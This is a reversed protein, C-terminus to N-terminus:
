RDATLVGASLVPFHMGSLASRLLSATPPVAQLMQGNRPPARGRRARIDPLWGSRQGPLACHRAHRHGASAACLVDKCRYPVHGAVPRPVARFVCHHYARADASVGREAGTCAFLDYDVACGGAPWYAVRQGRCMRECVRERGFCVFPHQSCPARELTHAHIHPHTGMSALVFAPFRMALVVTVFSIIILYVMQGTLNDNEMFLRIWFFSARAFAYFRVFASSTRHEMLLHYVMANKADASWGCLRRSVGDVDGGLGRLRFSFLLYPLLLLVSSLFSVVHEGTFCQMEPVERHYCGDPFKVSTDCTCEFPLILANSLPLQLFQRVADSLRV